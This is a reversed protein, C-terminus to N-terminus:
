QVATPWCGVRPCEGDCCNSLVKHELSVKKKSLFHFSVQKQVVPQQFHETGTTSPIKVPINCRQVKNLELEGILVGKWRSGQGVEM